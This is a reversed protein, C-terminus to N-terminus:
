VSFDSSKMRNQHGELIIRAEFDNSLVQVCDLEIEAKYFRKWADESLKKNLFDSSLKKAFISANETAAEEQSTIMNTMFRCFHRITAEMTM